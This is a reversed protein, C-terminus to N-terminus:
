YIRGGPLCSGGLHHDSCNSKKEAYDLLKFRWDEAFRAIGGSYVEGLQAVFNDLAEYLYENMICVAQEPIGAQIELVTERSSKLGIPIGIKLSLFGGLSISVPTTWFKIERVLIKPLTREMWVRLPPPKLREISEPNFSPITFGNEVKPAQIYSTIGFKAEFERVREELKGNFVAIEEEFRENFSRYILAQHEQVFEDLKGAQGRVKAVLENAYELPSLGLPNQPLELLSADIQPVGGSALHQRLNTELNKRYHDFDELLGSIDRHLTSLDGATLQCLANFSSFNSILRELLARALVLARRNSFYSLHDLLEKFEYEPGNRRLSNKSSVEYIRPTRGDLQRHFLSKIYQIDIESCEDRKNVIFLTSDLREAFLRALAELGQHPGIEISEPNNLMVLCVDCYHRAYREAFAQHLPNGKTFGPVDVIEKGDLRMQPVGIMISSIKKVNDPNASEKCIEALLKKMEDKPINKECYNYEALDSKLDLWHITSYRIVTPLNTCFIIASEPLYDDGMLSNALTSKGSGRGGLIGVRITETESRKKADDIDERIQSLLKGIEVHGAENAKSINSLLVTAAVEADRLANLAAVTRPVSPLGGVLEDM